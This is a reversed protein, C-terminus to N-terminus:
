LCSKARNGYRGNAVKFHRKGYRKGNEFTGPRISHGLYNIQNASLDYKKLKLKIGTDSLLLAVSRTHEIHGKQCRSFCFYTM